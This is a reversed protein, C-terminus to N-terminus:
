NHNVNTERALDNLPRQLFYEDTNKARRRLLYLCDSYGKYKIVNLLYFDPSNLRVNSSPPRLDKNKTM